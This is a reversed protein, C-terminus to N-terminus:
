SNISNVMMHVLQSSTMPQWSYWQACSVGATWSRLDACRSGIEASVERAVATPIGDWVIPSGLIFKSQEARPRPGTLTNWSDTLHSIAAAVSIAWTADFPSFQNTLGQRGRKSCVVLYGTSRVHAGFGWVHLGAAHPFSKYHNIYDNSQQAAVPIDRVDACM